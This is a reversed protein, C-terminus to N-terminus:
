RARLTAAIWTLTALAAPTAKAGVKADVLFLHRRSRFWINELYPQGGLASGKLWNAPRPLPLVAATSPTLRPDADSAVILGIGNAPLVNGNVQPLYGPHITPRQLPVNSILAGSSSVGSEHESFHMIHWHRPVDISWGAPDHYVHAAYDVTTRTRGGSGCGSIALAVVCTLVFVATRVASM